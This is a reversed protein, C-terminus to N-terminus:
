KGRLPISLAEVECPPIVLTRTTGDSLRAEVTRPAMCDTNLFYAKEDYAAAEREM